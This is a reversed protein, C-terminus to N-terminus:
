GVANSPVRPADDGGTPDLHGRHMDISAVATTKPDIRTVSEEEWWRYRLKRDVRWVPGHRATAGVGRGRM